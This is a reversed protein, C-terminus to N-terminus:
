FEWEVELNVGVVFDNWWLSEFNVMGDMRLFRAAWCSRLLPLFAWARVRVIPRWDSGKM